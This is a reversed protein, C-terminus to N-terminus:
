DGCTSCNAAISTGPLPQTRVVGGIAVYNEGELRPNLDVMPSFNHAQSGNWVTVACSITREKCVRVFYYSM